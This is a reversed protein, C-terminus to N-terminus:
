RKRGRLVGLLQKLTDYIVPLELYDIGIAVWALWFPLHSITTKGTFMDVVFEDTIWFLHLWQSNILVLYGVDKWNHKKRFTNIYLLSAGILAPIEAYDAIVLLLQLTPSHPFYSVGFLRLAVVHTTLWFLHALQWTFLIATIGLHLTHHREYWTWFQSSVSSAM